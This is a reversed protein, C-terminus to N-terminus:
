EGKSLISDPFSKVPCSRKKLMKNNKVWFSNTLIRGEKGTRSFLSSKVKDGRIENIWITPAIFVNYGYEYFRLMMDEVSFSGQYRKDIGGLKYWVDRKFSFCSSIIPSHEIKREYVNINDYFVGNTQYRGGVLTKDIHMRELYYNMNNLFKSSPLCDDAVVILYEGVSSRAAIELCQAPSAESYIYKFNDAIKKEPPNDGVFVIEFLVRNRRNFYNYITEYLEKRIASAIISFKIEM